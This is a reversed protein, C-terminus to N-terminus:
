IQLLNLSHVNRLLRFLRFVQFTRRCFNRLLQDVLQAVFNTHQLYRRAILLSGHAILVLLARFQHRLTPDLSPQGYATTARRETSV